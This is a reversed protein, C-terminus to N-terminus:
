FVKYDESFFIEIGSKNPQEGPRVVLFGASYPYQTEDEDNESKYLLTEIDAVIFERAKTRTPKLSKIYIPYQRKKNRIRRLPPLSIDGNEISFNEPSDLIRSIINVREEICLPVLKECPNSEIFIRIGVSLVLVETEEYKEARKLVQNQIYRYIDNVNVPISNNNVDTLPIATGVTFTKEEVHHPDMITYIIVFKSYIGKAYPFPYGFLILLDMIALSLLHCEILLPYEEKFCHTAIILGPHPNVHKTQEIRSYFPYVEKSSKGHNSYTRTSIHKMGKMKMKDIKFTCVTIPAM